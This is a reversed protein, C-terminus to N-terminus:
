LVLEPAANADGEDVDLDDVLARITLRDVHLLRALQAETLLNQRWAEEALLSIRLSLPRDADGKTADEDAIPGLVSRAQEDTIGNNAVFWDWTGGRAIRLEELRRVMTERSVRFVHSLIIIHRRSLRSSGATVQQFKQKIARPPMLLARAFANAYREERAGEPTDDDLIDPSRRTSIFHGAEHAGTIARRDRPHNANILICPGAVADFAYLGSIRSPLRRVFVRVGLQLELVATIDTIPAVGLGLWQRLEAADQEAQIRVDGPLIPREPPFSRPREIGLLNELEIEARVLNNLLEAAMEASPDTRATLKRFRPALDIQVAEERLLANVSTGYLGAFQQIENLRVRRQGQEIAVLTTRAIGLESAAGSQTLKALERALRLRGGVEVPSMRDILNAM